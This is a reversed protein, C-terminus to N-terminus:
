NTTGMARRVDDIIRRAKDLAELAQGESYAEFPAIDGPLMDPYRTPTYYQDLVGADELYQRFSPEYRVIAQLQGSTSSLDHGRGHSGEKQYRLAKLAKETAQHAYFCSDSYRADKLLLDGTDLDHGAQRLWRDAERGPDPRM